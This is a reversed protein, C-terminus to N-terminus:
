FGPVDSAYAMTAIANKLYEWAAWRRGKCQWSLNLRGPRILATCLTYDACLALQLSSLTM